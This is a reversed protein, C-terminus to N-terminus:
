HAPAEAAPEAAKDAGKEAAAKCGEKGGCGEKDGKKHKGKAKVNKKANCGEKKGEAHADAAGDDNAQAPSAHVIMGATVLAALASSLVKNRKSM